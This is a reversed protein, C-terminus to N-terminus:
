RGGSGSVSGGQDTEAAKAAVRRRAAEVLAQRLETDTLTLGMEKAKAVVEAWTVRSDIYEALHINEGTEELKASRNAFEASIWNQLDDVTKM